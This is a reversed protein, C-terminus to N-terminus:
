AAAAVGMAALVRADDAMEGVVHRRPSPLSRVLTPVAIVQREQALAPQQYIDVVELQYRGGLHQRCLRSVRDIARLSRPNSGAVYLHLIFEIAGAAAADFSQTTHTQEPM